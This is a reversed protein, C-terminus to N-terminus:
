GTKGLVKQPKAKEKKKESREISRLVKMMEKVIM